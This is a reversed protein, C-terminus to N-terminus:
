ARVPSTSPAATAGKEGQQDAAGAAADFPQQQGPM